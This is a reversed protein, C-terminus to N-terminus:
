LLKWVAVLGGTAYTARLTALSVNAPLPWEVHPYDKLSKWDGGWALGNQQAAVGLISYNGNSWGPQLDPKNLDADFTFDVALGFNHMSYGPRANTVIAGPIKRGQDYLKQQEAWSRYGSTMYYQAGLDAARTQAQIIRAAFAPFLQGLDIKVFGKM